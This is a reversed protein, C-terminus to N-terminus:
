YTQNPSAPEALKLKRLDRQAQEATMPAMLLTRTLFDMEEVAKVYYVEGPQLKLWIVKSDAYFTKGSEIKTRGPTIMLQFYHNPPLVGVKRDNIRLTYGAGGFEKQRYIILRSPESRPQEVIAYTAALTLLWWYVLLEMKM